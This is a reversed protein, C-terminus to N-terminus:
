RSRSIRTPPDIAASRPHHLFTHLHSTIADRAVDSPQYLLRQVNLTAIGGLRSTSSDSSRQGTRKRFQPLCLFTSMVCWRRRFVSELINERVNSVGEGTGASAGVGIGNQMSVMELSLNFLAGVFRPRSECSTSTSGPAEATATGGARQDTHGM